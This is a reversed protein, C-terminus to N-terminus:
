SGIAERRGSELSRYAAEVVGLDRRTVALSTAPTRGEIVCDVFHRWMARYGMLDRVGPLKLRTRRGVVLAILGNSEFHINGATGLIRSLGLGAVRSRTNWSHFLRGVAGDRFTVLLELADEVPATMPYDRTPRVAVASTPQGGGLELLLHVWHVGGELLAGGGMEDADTRWGTPRNTGARSVDIFLPAGVDGRDIHRRLVRLLPKYRYNEAVMAFVGYREVAAEIRAFEELGRAAPKEIMLAKGGEAAATANAVHASPPTCDFVADVSPEACAEAYSGFARVGGYKVRYREAKEPSRSAFSLRLRGGVVRRALRAHMGAIHGCGLIAVHLTSM